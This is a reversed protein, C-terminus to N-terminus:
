CSISYKLFINIIFAKKLNKKKNKKCLRAQSAASIKRIKLFFDQIPVQSHKKPLRLSSETSLWLVAHKSRVALFWARVGTPFCCCKPNICCIRKPCHQSYWRTSESTRVVQLMWSAETSRCWWWWWWRSQKNKAQNACPSLRVQPVIMKRSDQVVLTRQAIMYLTCVSMGCRHLYKVFYIYGSAEKLKSYAREVKWFSM